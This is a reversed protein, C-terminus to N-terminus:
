DVLTILIENFQQYFDDFELLHKKFFAYIFPWDERNYYNRNQLQWSVRGIKLNEESEFTEDWFTETSMSKEMVVKLECLQEWFISQIAKDKFQIDYCLAIYNGQCVMRLYTNKVQTPYHVWNVRRGSSSVAGRMHNKFGAWFSANWDKRAEKSLM